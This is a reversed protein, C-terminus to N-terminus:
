VKAFILSTNVGGFAFNNSMVRDTEFARGPGLILDLAGCREDPETVNLNPAFWGHRMMEISLIGELAGCAGLTHGTYNKITSVPVRDGFVGFTAQGEAIDGQDTATGHANVYGIREPPLGADDLAMRLARGMTEANPQTVHRGDTNTGFGVVEALIPAGRAIAHDYAELILTGAGEGIVLGDRNRDFARPTLQPTDNMRSTAFLTDFVAVQTPSFEEAGGAIMVDQLGFKIAEYAQGIALSGSTCATGTPILRGTTGFHVSLNVATTQPMMKLYTSSTVNKVERTHIITYFDALADVSGSSSGYAVGLRGGKLVPDGMLGAQELAQETANLAMVSVRGMTRIVKRTYREPYVFADATSCLRTQLGKYGALDESCRIVNELRKLRQFAEPVSLGLASVVGYGTVVVRRM